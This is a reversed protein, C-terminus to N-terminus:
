KDTLYRFTLGKSKKYIGKLVKVINSSNIGLKSAADKISPYVDGNSDIIEKKQTEHHAALKAKTTPNSLAKTVSESITQKLSNAKLKANISAKEKNDKISWYEKRASSIKDRYEQQQWSNLASKSRIQKLYGDDKEWLEKHSKSMKDKVEKCVKTGIKKNSMKIKVEDIYFCGNGGSKLNYGNPHLSNEQLIYKIELEDLEKKSNAICLQKITFNDKGYKNIANHFLNNNKKMAAYCHSYWRSALTRSTQGIYIKNNIKNTVKYIIM